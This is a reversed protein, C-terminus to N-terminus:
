MYTSSIHNMNSRAINYKMIIYIYMWSHDEDDLEYM